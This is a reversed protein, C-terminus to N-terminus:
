APSVCQHIERPRVGVTRIELSASTSGSSCCRGSSPPSSRRCCAAMTTLHDFYDAFVDASRRDYGAWFAPETVAVCGTLAMMEYDTTTRSVMHAHMDIYKMGSKM